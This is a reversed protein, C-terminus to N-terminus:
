RLQQAQKPKIYQNFAKGVSKASVVKAFEDASVRQYEYSSGNRFQVMMKMDEPNYAVTVVNLSDTVQVIRTYNLIRSRGTAM